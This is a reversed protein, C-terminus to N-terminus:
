PDLRLTPGVEHKVALSGAKKLKARLEEFEGDDM